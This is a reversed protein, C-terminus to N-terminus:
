VQVMLFSLAGWGFGQTGELCVLDAMDIENDDYGFNGDNANSGTHDLTIINGTLLRSSSLVNAGPDDPSVFRGVQPRINDVETDDSSEMGAMDIENDSHGINGDIANSMTKKKERGGTPM